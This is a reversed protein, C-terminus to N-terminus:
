HGRAAEVLVRQASAAEVFGQERINKNWTRSFSKLARFLKPRMAITTGRWVLAAQYLPIGGDQQFTVPFWTDRSQGHVKCPVLDVVFVMEPDRMLDGNQEYYHAVSVMQRRDPSFGIGEIALRMYPPNDISIAWTPDSGDLKHGRSEIIKQVNRM